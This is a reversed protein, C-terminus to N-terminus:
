FVDFVWKCLLSKIKIPKVEIIDSENEDNETSENEEYWTLFESGTSVFVSVLNCVFDDFCYKLLCYIKM